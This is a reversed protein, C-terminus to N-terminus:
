NRFDEEFINWLYINHISKNIFNKYTYIFYVYM